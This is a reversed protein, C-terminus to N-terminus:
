EWHVRSGQPSKEVVLRVPMRQALEPVHTVVGVMRGQTPLAELVEAALELAEADLTGFGEDLFLAGLRGRSLHESLSLALSLSALFTEGGSLTKAPRLAGTWLDEVYYVGDALRFRYRHQSLTYLLESARALMDLQLRELLYDPFKHGKLDEALQEWVGVQQVLGAAEKEAQRKQELDRELRALRELAAGLRSELEGRRARAEELRAKKRALEEPEVRPASALQGAIEELRKEVYTREERWRGLRQELRAVEEPSRLAPKVDAVSAFGLQRLLAAVSEELPGLAEALARRREEAARLAAAAEEVQRRLREAEAAQRELRDLRERLARAYAAPEEGGTRASIEEALGRRMAALRRELVEIEGADVPEGANLRELDGALLALQKELEATQREIGRAVGSTESWRERLEQLEAEKLHLEKELSALPSEEVRQPLTEVVHLCLPCPKGPELLHRFAAVSARKQEEDYRARLREVEEAARKGEATLRELEARKQRLEEALVERRHVLEQQRKRLREAEAAIRQRERLSRLREEVERYNRENYAEAPGAGEAGGLAALTRARAELLPLSAVRSRLDELKAEDLTENLKEWVTNVSEYTSKLKELEREQRRLREGAEELRRVEPLAKEAARARELWGEVEAMREAEAALAQRRAELRAKEQWLETVEDLRRVEKELGEIEGALREREARLRELEERAAEVAEESAEGYVEARQRAAALRERLEGLRAVARERLETLGVLGYLSFLLERRERSDGKLFSDFHGQPLLIARTFADYDLGLLREVAQNLTAIKESASSLQWEAGVQKELRAENKNAIVRTVRWVEEGLRFTLQVWAKGAGPNLLAKLGRRGMRPTEGYLAFTIADLLTSKGSGTPGTIAFLEVDSFDVSAHRAFSGFGELDLRLPRM